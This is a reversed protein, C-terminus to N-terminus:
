KGSQPVTTRSEPQSPKSEAAELADRYLSLASEMEVVTAGIVDKGKMLRLAKEQMAVAEVLDGQRSHADALGRHAWFHDPDLQIVEGFKAIAEKLREQRALLFGLNVQAPVYRADFGIARRYAKEADEL